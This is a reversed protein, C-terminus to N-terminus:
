GADANALLLLGAVTAALGGLMTRVPGYRAVLRATPGLTLAGVILTQPLFAAGSQLTGYGLVRQLYLAGLFFCAYLGIGLM